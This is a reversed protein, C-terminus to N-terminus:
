VSEKENGTEKLKKLELVLEDYLGQLHSKEECLRAVDAHLQLNENKVTPLLASKEELDFVKLQLSYAVKLMTQLLRLENLNMRSSIEPNMKIGEVAELFGSARLLLIQVNESTLDKWEQIMPFSGQFDVKNM